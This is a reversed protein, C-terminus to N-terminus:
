LTLVHFKQNLPELESKLHEVFADGHALYFESFNTIREQLGGKPFLELHIAELREIYDKHANKEAKLLRKELVELGKIQKKEQASM